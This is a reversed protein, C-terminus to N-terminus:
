ARRSGAPMGDCGIMKRTSPTSVQASCMAATCTISPAEASVSYPANLRSEWQRRSAAAMIVVALTATDTAM